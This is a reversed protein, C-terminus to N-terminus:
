GHRDDEQSPGGSQPKGAADRSLQALKVEYRIREAMLAQEYLENLEGLKKWVDAPDLGGVTKKRFKVEKLWATIKPLQPNDSIDASKGAPRPASNGGGSGKIPKQEYKGM